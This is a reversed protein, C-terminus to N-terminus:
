ALYEASYQPMATLIKGDDSALDQSLCAIWRAFSQDKNSEILARAGRPEDLLLNRVADYVPQTTASLIGNAPLGREMERARLDVAQVSIILAISLYRRYLEISQDALLCAGMGQSNINQNFQEAHTPFRDALPSGLHELLPVVSNGGIQLAKCGVGLGSTDCALSAPLGRSFEPTMLLAIQTDLHKASLALLHRLRDMGMSLYQGLFHGGHYFKQNDPDVLPNDTTANIEVNIQQNIDQLGEIIPGLFQPLCRISYRDQILEHPTEGHRCNTTETICSSGSLLEALTQAAWIQGPHPKQQHLAPAFAEATGKLAQIMLAQITLSLKVLSKTKEMVIAAIGGMMATGNILALGEKPKLAIKKLGFRKLAVHGPVTEANITVPTDPLTGTIAGAITALPVLDGSAGISGYQCVEPVFPLNLCTQLRELVDLSIGSYGRCLSNLRVVMAARVYAQPLVPGFSADHAALLCEQLEAADAPSIKLNAMGGFLTTVGYIADGASVAQEVMDASRQIKARFAQDLPLSVSNQRAAIRTVLKTNLDLGNIETCAQSAQSLKEDSAFPTMRSM